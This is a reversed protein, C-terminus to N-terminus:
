EFRNISFQVHMGDPFEVTLDITLTIVGGLRQIVINGKKDQYQIHYTLTGDVGPDTWNGDISLISFTTLGGWNLDISNSNHTTIACSANIQTSSHLEMNQDSFWTIDRKTITSDQSYSHQFISMLVMFWGMRYILKM